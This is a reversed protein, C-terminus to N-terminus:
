PIVTLPAALRSSLAPGAATSRSPATPVRCSTAAARHLGLFVGDLTLPRTGFTNTFRVRAVSGWVDPKIILRFTQDSAGSVPTEFVAELAPQASPNGSPYPGHPSATWSAVWKQGRPPGPLLPATSDGQLTPSPAPNGARRRQGRRDDAGRSHMRWSRSFTKLDAQIGAGGGSDSGAITVAIPTKM